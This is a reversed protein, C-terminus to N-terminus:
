EVEVGREGALEQIKRGVKKLEFGQRFTEYKIFDSFEQLIEKTNEKVAQNCEELKRGYQKKWADKKAKLEEVQKQLQGNESDLRKIYDLIRQFYKARQSPNIHEACIYGDPQGEAMAEFEDIEEQLM